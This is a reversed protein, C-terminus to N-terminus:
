EQYNEFRFEVFLKKKYKGSKEFLFFFIVLSTGSFLYSNKSRGSEYKYKMITKFLYSIYKVSIAGKKMPLVLYFYLNFIFVRVVINIM